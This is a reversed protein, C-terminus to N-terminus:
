KIFSYLKTPERNEHNNENTIVVEEMLSWHDTKVIISKSNDIYNQAQQTRKVKLTEMVWWVMVQIVPNKVYM